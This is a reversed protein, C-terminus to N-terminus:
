QHKQSHQGPGHEKDQEGAIIVVMMILELQLIGRTKQANAKLEM